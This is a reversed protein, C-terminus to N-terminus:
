GMYDCVVDVHGDLNDTVVLLTGTKLVLACRATLAFGFVLVCFLVHESGKSRFNDFTKSDKYIAILLM